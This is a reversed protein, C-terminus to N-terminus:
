NLTFFLYAGDGVPGSNLKRTRQVRHAPSGCHHSGRASGEQTWVHRGRLATALAITGRRLWEQEFM